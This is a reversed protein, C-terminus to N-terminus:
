EMSYKEVLSLVEQYIQNGPLGKKEANEIWKVTIPETKALFAARESESLDYAKGGRKLGREIGEKATLDFVEGLTTSIKPGSLEDIIKQIDPPLSNWAKLSMAGGGVATGMNITTYHNLQEDLKFDRLASYNTFVGDIMGKRLSDYTDFITINIPSAGWARIMEVQRPNGTRLRLGSM